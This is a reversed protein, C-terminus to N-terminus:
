GRGRWVLRAGLAVSATAALLGSTVVRSSCSARVWAGWSGAQGSASAAPVQLASHQQHARAAAHKRLALVLLTPPARGQQGTAPAGSPGQRGAARPTPAQGSAQQVPSAPLQLLLPRQLARPAGSLRHMAQAQLALPLQSSFLQMRMPAARSFAGAHAFACLAPPCAKVRLLQPQRAPALAAEGSMETIMTTQRPQAPLAVLACCAAAAAQDVQQQQELQAIREQQAAMQQAFDAETAAPM